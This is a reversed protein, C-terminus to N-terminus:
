LALPLALVPNHGQPRAVGRRGGDSTAPIVKPAEECGPGLAGSAHHARTVAGTSAIGPGQTQRTPHCTASVSRSPDSSSPLHAMMLTPHLIVSLGPGLLVVQWLTSHPDSGVAVIESDARGPFGLRRQSQKSTPVLSRGEANRTEQLSKAAGWHPEPPPLGPASKEQSSPFSRWLSSPGPERRAEPPHLSREQFGWLLSATGCLSGQGTDPQSFPPPSNVQPSCAGQLYPSPPPGWTLDEGPRCDWQSPHRVTWEVQMM